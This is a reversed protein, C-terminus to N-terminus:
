EIVFRGTQIGSDSNIKVFYIGSSLGTLEIRNPNNLIINSVRVLKGYMDFLELTGTKGADAPLSIFVQNRAPNPYIVFKGALENPNSISLPIDECIADDSPNVDKQDNPASGM